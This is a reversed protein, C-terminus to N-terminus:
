YEEPFLVTTVSDPSGYKDTIIWTKPFGGRDWVSLLRGGTGPNNRVQDNLVGDDFCTDGWCGESHSVLIVKLWHKRWDVGLTEPRPESEYPMVGTDVFDRIGATMVIQGLSALGSKPRATTTM